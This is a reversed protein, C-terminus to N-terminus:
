NFTLFTHKYKNKVYRQYISKDIFENICHNRLILYYSSYENLILTYISSLKTDYWVDTKEM